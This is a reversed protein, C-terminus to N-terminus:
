IHRWNMPIITSKMWNMSTSMMGATLAKLKISKMGCSAELAKYDDDAGIIEEDKATFSTGLVTQMGGQFMAGCSSFMSSVIM